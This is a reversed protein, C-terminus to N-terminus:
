MTQTAPDVKPVWEEEFTYPGTKKKDVGMAKDDIQSVDICCACVCKYNYVCQTM